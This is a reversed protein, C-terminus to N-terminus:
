GLIERYLAAHREVMADIAFEAAIRERGAIGLRRALESDDLIKNAYRALGARDGVPVLYGTEGHVVLERNGWIDTAVVPVASAMAEMVVNPLGEYGSALWLLDFHPMLRPMDDRAGLFHVKDDIRCLRRYRELTQRQPGDGIILLHVDNRIAKLLDSAWILDKIRKQPWLRGVAGIIRAESPLGLEGLLQARTVPSPPAPGIGNYILRFKDAPLGKAAYFEQVGRSNVVIAATRRAFYRDIALHRWQKWPDVCREGAVINRVGAALAAARGYANATFMWTQVLDPKLRAIQRRLRYYATPDFQWEKGIVTLPIQRQSLEAALPGGRTLAFVHVDFEDRPLGGALMVLQKEAGSRDLTPIIHLIRRTM